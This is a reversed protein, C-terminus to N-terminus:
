LIQYIQGSDSLDSSFIIFIKCFRISIQYLDCSFRIFTWTEPANIECM